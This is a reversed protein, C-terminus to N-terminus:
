SISENSDEMNKIYGEPVGLFGTLHKDIEEVDSDGLHGLEGGICCSALYDISDVVKLIGDVSIDQPPYLIGLMNGLVSHDIQSLCELGKNFRAQKDPCDSLELGCLFLGYCSTNINPGTMFLNSPVAGFLEDMDVEDIIQFIFDDM